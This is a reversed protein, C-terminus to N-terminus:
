RASQSAAKRPLDAAREVRHDEWSLCLSPLQCHLCAELHGWKLWGPAGAAVYKDRLYNHGIQGSIDEIASLIHDFAKRLLSFRTLMGRLSGPAGGGGGRGVVRGHLKENLKPERHESRKVKLWQVLPKITLGQFVPTPGAPLCAGARPGARGM